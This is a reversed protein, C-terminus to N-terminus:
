WRFMPLPNFPHSKLREVGLRVLTQHFGANPFAELVDVVYGDDLKYRLMGKSIDIWDAKRFPEVLWSPNSRYPRIKHHQEIMAKIEESWEMRGTAELHKGALQRSPEIYDFTGETWIGLDHFAAAIAIKLRATEDREGVLAICFLFVRRCHNRYGDFDHGLCEHYPELLEDVAAVQREPDHLDVPPKLKPM